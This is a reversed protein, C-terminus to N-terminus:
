KIINHKKCLKYIDRKFNYLVRNIYHNPQEDGFDTVIINNVEDYFLDYKVIMNVMFLHNDIFQVNDMTNILYRLEKETPEINSDYKISLDILYTNYPEISKM